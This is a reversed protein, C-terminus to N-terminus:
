KVIIGLLKSFYVDQMPSVVAGYVDEIKVRIGEIECDSLDIGELKTGAMSAEKLNSTCFM